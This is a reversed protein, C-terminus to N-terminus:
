SARPVPLARPRREANQFLPLFRQIWHVSQIYGANAPGPWRLSPPASTTSTTTKMLELPPVASSPVPEEVALTRRGLVTRAQPHRRGPQPEAHLRTPRRREEWPTVGRRAPGGEGTEALLHDKSPPPEQVAKGERRDSLIRGRRRLIQRRETVSFGGGAPRNVPRLTPAYARTQRPGIRRGFMLDLHAVEAPRLTNVFPRGQAAREPSSASESGAGDVASVGASGGTAFLSMYEAFEPRYTTVEDEPPRTTFDPRTTTVVRDGIQNQGAPTVHRFVAAPLTPLYTFPRVTTASDLGSNLHPPRAGSIASGDRLPGVSVMSTGPYEESSLVTAAREGAPRELQSTMDEWRGPVRRGDGPGYVYDPTPTAVRAGGTWPTQDRRVESTPLFLCLETERRCAQNSPSSGLPTGPHATHGPGQRTFGPGQSSGDASGPGQYGRPREAPRAPQPRVSRQRSEGAPRDPRPRRPVAPTDPPLTLFAPGLVAPGASTVYHVDAVYGSVPDAYYDVVQHGLGPERAHLLGWVAALLVAHAWRGGAM